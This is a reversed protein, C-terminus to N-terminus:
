TGHSGHEASGICEVRDCLTTGEHDHEVHGFAHSHQDHDHDHHVWIQEPLDSM